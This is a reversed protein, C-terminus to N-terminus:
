ITNNSKILGVIVSTCGLTIAIQDMGANHALVALTFIVIMIILNM